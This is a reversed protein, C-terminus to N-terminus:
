NKEYFLLTLQNNNGNQQLRNGNEDTIRFQVTGGTSSKLLRSNGELEFQQFHINSFYSNGVNAYIEQLIDDTVGDILDCHIFISDESQLNIVNTSTLTDGSFTNTTNPNFGMCQSMLTSTLSGFTFSPQNGSNNSVSFSIRGTDPQNNSPMSNTYIWNNGLVVSAANLLTPLTGLITSRSYVAPTLTITANQGLETLTFTNLGSEISYYTKAISAQLVVVYKFNNPQKLIINYTFLSDNSADFDSRNASNIYIIQSSRILSM